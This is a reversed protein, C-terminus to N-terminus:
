YKSHSNIFALGIEESWYTGKSPQVFGVHGGYKPTMMQVFENQNVEEHPYCLDSLFPDDLANVLLTPVRIDPIFQASSCQTYYDEADKFGGIPGTFVDDFDYLTKVRELKEDTYIDPFQEAKLKVKKRLSHLFRFEYIFNSYHKIKQSCSSLHTPVSFVAISRIKDLIWEGKQGGYVLSLNGGLSFGLIAMEDYDKEVHQVVTELDDTAGSHYVRIQRNMEGSCTRYNMAAVDWGNQFLHHALALIYKAHASGELGHCLVAVRQHGNRLRDVDLFDNDLTPIRERQYPVDYTQRFLTTFVTNLHGNRFLFSPQYEPFQFNDKKAM